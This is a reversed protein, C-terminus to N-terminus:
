LARFGPATGLRRRYVEAPPWTRPERRQEHPARRAPACEDGMATFSEKGRRRSGSRPIHAHSHWEGRGSSSIHGNSSSNQGNTAALPRSSRRRRGKPATAGVHRERVAGNQARLTVGRALLAAMRARFPAITRRRAVCRLPLPVFRLPLAALRLRRADKQSRRVTPRASIADKRRRRSEKRARFTAIRATGADIRLPLTGTPASALTAAAADASETVPQPPEGTANRPETPPAPAICVAVAQRLVLGRVPRAQETGQRAAQSLRHKRCTENGRNWSHRPVVM